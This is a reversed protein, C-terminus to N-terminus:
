WSGVRGLCISGLRTGSMYGPGGIRITSRQGQSWGPDCSWSGEWRLSPVLLDLGRWGVPVVRGKGSRQNSISEWRGPEDKPLSGEWFGM